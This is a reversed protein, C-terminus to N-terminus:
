PPACDHLRGLREQGWGGGGGGMNDRGPSCKTSRLSLPLGFKCRPQILSGM